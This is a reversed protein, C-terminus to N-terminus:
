GGSPPRAAKLAVLLYPSGHLVMACLLPSVSVQAMRFGVDWLALWLLVCCFGAYAMLVAGRQSALAGVVFGILAFLLLNSGVALLVQMGGGDPRLAALPQTPWLYFVLDYVFGEVRDSTTLKFLSPPWTAYRVVPGILGTAAFVLVGSSGSSTM